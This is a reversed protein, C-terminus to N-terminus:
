AMPQGKRAEAYAVYSLQDARSNQARPVWELTVGLQAALQSAEACLPQLHASKCAWEGSVQRIVLQSDGRIIVGQRVERKALWRLAELLGHYEAVNNTMGAGHGVCGANRAVEVGHKIAVWGWTAWGGPNTPECAGDFYIVRESNM